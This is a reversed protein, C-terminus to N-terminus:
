RGVGVEKSSFLLNVLNFQFTLPLPIERESQMTKAEQPSELDAVSISPGCGRDRLGQAPSSHIEVQSTRSM